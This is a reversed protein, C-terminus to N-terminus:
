PCHISSGANLVRRRDEARVYATLAAAPVSGGRTAPLERVRRILDYGDQGPMGIDSVLVDVPQAQLLELATDAGEARLVHSGCAELVASVLHRADEDDDVVLVRLGRLEPPHDFRSRLQADNAANPERQLSEPALPLRVSFTAGKGGGASAVEIGGGHLEVLQRAIALGLGLGGRSRAHSASEQRFPEFVFPLFDPDIGRGTDRVVITTFAEDAHVGLEVQGGNPTFKVANSLLNWIVQQIRAPDGMLRPGPAQLNALLVIGKAEAAPRVSQLATEAVRSADFSQVELRMKGSIIRSVDLLDEVLQAMAVANREVTEIARARKSEDLTNSSMMKAWGLIANLPTRLEHSVSALFEDKSRNAVDAAARARQEAAYLRANDM